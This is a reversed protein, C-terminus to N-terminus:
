LYKKVIKFDIGNEVTECHIGLSEVEKINRDEDDFFVFDAFPKNLKKQINQLHVLKSGPYIEKLTVYKDIDFLQLLQEANEPTYTRSAVAIIRKDNQLKTLIETTEPFLRLWRGERDKLMDDEWEYPPLTNSCFTDGANWLTFDLDFVFIEKKNNYM